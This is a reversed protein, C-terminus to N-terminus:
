EEPQKERPPNEEPIPTPEPPPNLLETCLISAAVRNLEFVVDRGQLMAYVTGNEAEAGLLLTKGIGDSGTLGLRIVAAPPELGYLAPNEPNEAVFREASLRLIQRLFIELAHPNLTRGEPATVAFPKAADDRTLECTEHPLTRTIRLVQDRPINLLDRARYYLPNLNVTDALQAAVGYISTGDARVLLTGEQPPLSSIEWVAFSRSDLATEGESRNTTVSLEVACYPPSFGYETWNTVEDAVYNLIGSDCWNEMLMDVLMGDAKQRTPRLLEWSGNEPKQLEIVQEGRTLKVHRIAPAALTTLRRSRLENLPVALLRALENSVACVSPKSEWKVYVCNTMTEISKGILLTDPTKSNKRWLALETAPHDLGYATLDKASDTIFAEIQLPLLSDLLRQVAAVSARTKIPQQIIWQGSDRRGAQIFGDSRRISFRTIDSANEHFLNRVRWDATSAPIMQLLHHDVSVIVDQSNEKVYIRDDLTAKRGILYTKSRTKGTLRILAQPTDMGYDSLTLNREQREPATITTNKRLLELFYLFRHILGEDALDTVPERLVWQDEERNCVLKFGDREIVIEQIDDPDIMFAKRARANQEATSSTDREFFYIFAGLTLVLTFLIFTISGKM